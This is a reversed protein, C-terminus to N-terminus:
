KLKVIRAQSIETRLGPYDLPFFDVKKNNVERIAFETGDGYNTWYQLIIKDGSNILADLATVRQKTEFTKLETETELTFSYKPDNRTGWIQKQRGTESDIVITTDSTSEDGVSEGKVTGVLEYVVLQEKPRVEQQCSALIPGSLLATLTLKNFLRM